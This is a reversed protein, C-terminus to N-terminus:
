KTLVEDLNLIANAVITLAYRGRSGALKEAREPQDDFEAAAEEYLVILRERKADAIEQGTAWRYGAAIQEDAGQGAWAMREALGAAFEVYADDNMVALAQLPTNTAIRRGVCVDRSPADFTLMSPYGSTRKWFTYIARRYRDEGEATRWEAGNYVSRWVGPPQPPMVPPGFMKPWLRGSLALAQDRVMEATLRTRPGRSLLRNRPDAALKEPTIAGAQRYTASLVIDRLMHKISWHHDHMFRLSLHDLLEAHSPPAGSTGFDEATEVLGVGFLEQWLRNVLVRATLPNDPSAIWRAADLRNPTSASNDASTPLPPFIGPTAPQVEDGKDMWNGRVFAYTQRDLRTPQEAMVPIDAHPIRDRRRRLDRLERREDRAGAVLEAWAESGSAAFRARRFCMSGDGIDNRNFELTLRLRDGAALAVPQDVAFVAHRPRSMRTFEAWGRNNDRLSDEPDYLPEAEDAFAASFKVDRPPSGDAPVIAARLRTLMFGLEPIKLAAVDDKPLVDIRLATLQALDNLPLEVTFVGNSTITGTALLEAGGIVLKTEGTATAVDPRLPQWPLEENAAASRRFLERRIAAIRQDLEGAETWDTMDNPVALLPADDSVDADRSTNFFAVFQYYEANRIPEYPHDHCQACRFTTGLFAEWTTAVRDLVAATRYEEDDTGGEDNTQTNRHFATAVRDALTAEPLLDGALQKV